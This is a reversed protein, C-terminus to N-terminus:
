KRDEDTELVQRPLGKFLPHRKLLSNWQDRGDNRREHIELVEATDDVLFYNLVDRRRLAQRTDLSADRRAGNTSVEEARQKTDKCESRRRNHARERQASAPARQGATRVNAGAVTM